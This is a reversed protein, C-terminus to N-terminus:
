DKGEDDPLSGSSAAEDIRDDFSAGSGLQWLLRYNLLFLISILMVSWESGIPKSMVRGRTQTEHQTYTRPHWQTYKYLCMFLFMGLLFSIRLLSSDSIGLNSVDSVWRSDDFLVKMDIKVNFNFLM